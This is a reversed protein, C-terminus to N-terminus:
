LVWLLWTSGGQNVSSKTVVLVLLFGRQMEGLAALHERWPFTSSLGFTIEEKKRRYHHLTSFNKLTRIKVTMECQAKVASLLLKM